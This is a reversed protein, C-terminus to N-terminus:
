KVGDREPSTDHIVFETIAKQINWGERRLSENIFAIVKEYNLRGLDRRRYTCFITRKDGEVKFINRSVHLRDRLVTPSARLDGSFDGTGQIAFHSEFYNWNLEQVEDDLQPVGPDWPVTEVKERSVSYGRHTLGTRIRRVENWLNSRSGKFRSSTMPDPRRNEDQPFEIVIPKVGLETCVTKFHDYDSSYVYIHIEFESEADFLDNGWLM